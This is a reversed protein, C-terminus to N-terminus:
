ATVTNELGFPSGMALVWDGVTMSDSDGLKAVTLQVDKPPDIKIVALDTETDTGILKATRLMGPADDKLKVRIRDAGEVVHFNTIIYGNANLIVGSGLSRSRGGNPGEPGGFPNQDDDGGQGGQGGQGQGGFFRNFFDQLDDNNGGGNDDGQGQGRRLRRRPKATSETNINVVASGVQKTVQGFTNSLQQPSQMPLLAADNTSVNGRVGTRSLVTGILIGVTLTLLVVLTSLMRQTKLRAMMSTFRSNM